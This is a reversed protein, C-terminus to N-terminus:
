CFCEPPVRSAFEGLLPTSTDRVRKGRLTAGLQAVSMIQAPQTTGKLVQSVRLRSITVAVAMEDREKPSFTRGRQPDEPVREGSAEPLVLTERSSLYKALVVDDAAQILDALSEFAPDDASTALADPRRKRTLACTTGGLAGVAALILVRRRSASFTSM